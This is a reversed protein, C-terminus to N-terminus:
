NIVQRRNRLHLSKKFNDSSQSTAGSLFCSRRSSTKNDQLHSRALDTPNKANSLRGQSVLHCNSSNKSNSLSKNTTSRFLRHSIHAYVICTLVLPAVYFLLFDLVYILHYLKRDFRHICRRMTGIGFITQEGLHSLFPWTGNYLIAFIWISAIIKFARKITCMRQARMPHCIAVWRELSFATISLASTDFSLYQLTTLLICGYSGFPYQYPPYVLQLIEPGTASILVLIDSISLSVLYCDTPTHLNRALLVVLVVLCNGLLGIAFILTLSIVGVLQFTLDYRITTTSSNTPTVIDISNM